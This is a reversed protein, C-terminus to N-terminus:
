LVSGIKGSNELSQLAQFTVISTLFSTTGFRIEQGSRSESEMLPLLFSRPSRTVRSPFLLEGNLTGVWLPGRCLQCSSRAEAGGGNRAPTCTHGWAGVQAYLEAVAM